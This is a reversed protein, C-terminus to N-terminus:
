VWGTIISEANLNFLSNPIPINTSTVTKTNSQYRLYGVLKVLSLM